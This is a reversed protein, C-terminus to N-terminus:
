YHTVNVVSEYNNVLNIKKLFHRQRNQADSFTLQSRSYLCIKELNQNKILVQFPAINCLPKFPPRTLNKSSGM